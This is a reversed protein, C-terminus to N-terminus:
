VKKVGYLSRATKRNKVCALDYIGRVVLFSVGILDKVRGCRVLITSHQQLNHGEGIIKVTLRNGLNTIIVKAIRRNASNPKKPSMTLIKLCVAKKQPTQLLKFRKSKFPTGRYNEPLNSIRVMLISYHKTTFFPNSGKTNQQHSLHVVPISKKVFKIVWFNYYVMFLNSSSYFLNAIQRMVM